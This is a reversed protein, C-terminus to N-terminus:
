SRIKTKLASKCDKGKLSIFTFYRYAFNRLYMYESQLQVTIFLTIVSLRPWCILSNYNSNLKKSACNNWLNIKARVADM